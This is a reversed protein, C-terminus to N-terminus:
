IGKLMGSLAEGDLESSHFLAMPLLFCKSSWGESGGKRGNTTGTPTSINSLFNGGGLEIHFHPYKKNEKVFDLPLNNAQNCGPKDEKAPLCSRM